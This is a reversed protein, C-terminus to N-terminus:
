DQAPPLTASPAAPPPPPPKPPPPPPPKPKAGPSPPPEPKAEEPKNPTGQRPLVGKDPLAKTQQPLGANAGAEPLVTSPLTGKSIPLAGQWKLVGAGSEAKPLVTADAPLVTKKAPLLSANGDAGTIPRPPPAGRRVIRFVMRRNKSTMMKCTADLAEDPGLCARDDYVPASHGFSKAQLRQPDIGQQILYRLVSNVRRQSLNVSYADSARVDTRGEIEVERIDPNEILVKVVEDLTPKSEDLIVDKDTAFHVQDLTAIEDDKVYAPPCGNRGHPGQPIDPCEDLRDVV